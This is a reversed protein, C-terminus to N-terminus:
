NTKINKSYCIYYLHMGLGGLGRIQIKRLNEYIKQTNFPEGSGGSGLDPTKESKRLNEEPFRIENPM